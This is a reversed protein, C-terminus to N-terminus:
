GHRIRPDFLAYSLDSLLLGLMTMLASFTTTAMVVNYDRAQLGEYAYRGMGPIDFITEVVISGGVLVPLVSAFLTLVPLLANPVGHRLVAQRQTLGRARAARMWGEHEVELLGARMQRSLYALGGYTLTAVPLVCHLAVDWARALPGFDAADQSSLGIAPLWDLGAAGFLLALMLGAWFTPVSHLGFLLIAVSGDAASGRRLASWIGLPIAILYSLLVACLTLPLTISLRRGIEGVVSVGPRHMEDGLDLAFLGHWPREGGGGFWPHGDGALSFPGLYHLYQRWMPQDLMHLRRFRAASAQLDPGQTLEGAVEAGAMVTAPDGPAARLALFVLLTIGLLTPLLWALRRLAYSLM